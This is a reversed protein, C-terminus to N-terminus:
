CFGNPITYVQKPSPLSPMQEEAECVSNAIQSGDVDMLVQFFHHCSDCVVFRTSAISFLHLLHSKIILLLHPRYLLSIESVLFLLPLKSRNEANQACWEDVEAEWGATRARALM